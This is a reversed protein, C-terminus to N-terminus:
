MGLAARPGACRRLRAEVEEAADLTYAYFKSPDFFSFATGTSTRKGTSSRYLNGTAVLTGTDFYHPDNVDVFVSNQLVMNTGGRAYNGYSDVHELLNNFLHARLVNDTSPNRQVTDHIWNHHITIQSTVNETWGIGFAKNHQELINWSVTLFTTDKRSDIMGDGLHRFHVHDIWVHHAGDMQVGDRDGGEDGGEDYQGEIYSDRITLNRIIVDHIGANLRFGGMVITANAGAGVITKESQVEIEEFPSFTLTGEVVCVRADKAGACARLEAQTTVRTPKAAAGGRTGGEVTAFGVLDTPCGDADVSPAPQGAESTAAADRAADLASAAQADAAADPASSAGDLSSADRALAGADREGGDMDRAEAASSADSVSRGPAPAADRVAAADRAPTSESADEVGSADSCSM